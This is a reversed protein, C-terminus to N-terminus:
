TISINLRLHKNEKTVFLIIFNTGRPTVVGKSIAQFGQYGWIRALEPRDYEVGIEITDFSIMTQPRNLDM